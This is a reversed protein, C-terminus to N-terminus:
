IKQADDASEFTFFQMDTGKANPNWYDSLTSHPMIKGWDRPVAIADIRKGEKTTFPLFATPYIEIGKFSIKRYSDMPPPVYGGEPWLLSRLGQFFDPGTWIDKDGVTSRPITDIIEKFKEFNFDQSM